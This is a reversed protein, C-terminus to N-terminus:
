AWINKNTDIRLLLRKEGTEEITPSRHLIASADPYLAGKLIAVDGTNVQQVLNEVINLELSSEKSLTDQIISEDPMWLTGPGVYTCLMRLVNIDAHFKKCMNSSVTALLIRFSTCQTVKQFQNLLETIDELLLYFDPFNDKFIALMKHTIDDITGSARCEYRQNILPKLEKRMLEVNRNYVAINKNKLLIDKLMSIESVMSANTFSRKTISM